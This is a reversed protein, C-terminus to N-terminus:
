RRGGHAPCREHKLKAPNRPETAKPDASWPHKRGAGASTCLRWGDAHDLITSPFIRNMVEEVFKESVEHPSLKKRSM